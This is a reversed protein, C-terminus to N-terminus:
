SRGEKFVAPFFGRFANSLWITEGDKMSNRPVTGESCLGQQLAWRRTVGQQGGSSKPPTVWREERFLYPTTISGDMILGDTNYLLVEKTHTPGSIGAAERARNYMERDSTKFSTAPSLDTTQSDMVVNWPPKSDIAFSTPFLLPQAIQKAPASKVSITGDSDFSVACRWADPVTSPKEFAMGSAESEVHAACIQAIQEPRELKLLWSDGVEPRSAVMAAAAEQLRDYHYAMMYM